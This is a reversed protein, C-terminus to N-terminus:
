KIAALLRKADQSYWDYKNGAGSTVTSELHWKIQARNAEWLHKANNYIHGWLTSAFYYHIMPHMRMANNKAEYMLSSSTWYDAKEWSKIAVFMSGVSSKNIAHAKEGYEYAKAENGVDFYALALEGLLLHDEPAVKLGNELIEVISEDAFQMNRLKMQLSAHWRIIESGTWSDVQSPDDVLLNYAMEYDTTAMTFNNANKNINARERFIRVDSPFKTMLETLYDSAKKPDKDGYAYVNALWLYAWLNKEDAKIASKFSSEAEKYDPTYLKYYKIGIQLHINSPNYNEKKSLKLAKEYFKFAQDEFKSAMGKQYCDDASSCEQAITPTNNLFIILAILAASVKYM